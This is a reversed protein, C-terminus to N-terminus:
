REEVVPNRLSGIGDIEVVVQDGERLFRPPSAAMGVGAPTGTLVVTGPLLTTSGSLFSILEAVSFIMDCTAAEQRVEGNLLTRLPLIQPDPIDEPTVLVPGLPCFTDFGKAKCWQGGGWQNQWDRASVDNACTYGLVYDLAEGVPVNRCRRGIVVALECEYDVQESRLYRPLVIPGGPDQVSAPNKMFVVPHRPASGGLEEAHAAFNKGIGFIAAPVVPALRREFDLLEGTLEFGGFPDGEVREVGNTGDRGWKVAGDRERVRVWRM